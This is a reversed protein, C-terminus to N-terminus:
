LSPCTVRIYEELPYVRRECPQVLVRAGEERVLEYVMEPTLPTRREWIRLPDEQRLGVVVQQKNHAHKSGKFGLTSYARRPPSRRLFM